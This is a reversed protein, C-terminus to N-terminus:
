PYALEATLEYSILLMGGKFLGDYINIAVLFIRDGFLMSVGQLLYILLYQFVILKYGFKLPLRMYVAMGFTFIGSVTCIVYLKQILSGIEGGFNLQRYFIVLIKNMENMNFLMLAASIAFMMFGTNGKM